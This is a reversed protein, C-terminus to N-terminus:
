LTMLLLLRELLVDDKQWVWNSIPAEEQKEPVGLPSNGKPIGEFVLWFPDAGWFFVWISNSMAVMLVM